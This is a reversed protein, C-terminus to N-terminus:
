FLLACHAMSGWCSLRSFATLNPDWDGPANLAMTKRIWYYKIDNWDTNRLRSRSRTNKEGAGARVGAGTRVGARTGTGIFLLSEVILNKLILM